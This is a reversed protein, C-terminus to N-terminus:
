STTAPQPTSGIRLLTALLASFKDLILVIEVGNMAFRVFQAVSILQYSTTILRVTLTVALPSYSSPGSTIIQYTPTAAMTAIM